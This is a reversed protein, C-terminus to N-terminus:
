LLLENSSILHLDIGGGLQGFQEVAFGAGQAAVFLAVAIAKLFTFGKHAIFLSGQQPGELSGREEGFNHIGRRGLAPELGM